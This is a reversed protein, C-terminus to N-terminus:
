KLLFTQLAINELFSVLINNRYYNFKISIKCSKLQFFYLGKSLIDCMIYVCYVHVYQIYTCTYMYMHVHVHVSLVHVNIIYVLVFMYIEQCTNLCYKLKIQDKGIM